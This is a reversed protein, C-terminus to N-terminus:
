LLLQFQTTLVWEHSGNNLLVDSSGDDIPCGNPLYMLQTTIKANHGHMWYNVGGSIEHVTNESGAPTGALRMYEYRLYPEWNKAVIYSAQFSAVGLSFAM